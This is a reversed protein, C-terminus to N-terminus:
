GGIPLAARDHPAAHDAADRSCAAGAERYRIRIGSRLTEM